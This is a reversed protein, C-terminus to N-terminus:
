DFADTIPGYLEPRRHDLMRTACEDLDITYVLADDHDGELKAALGGGPSAVFAVRPHAFAVFCENEYARTRMWWENDLHWMGYSPILIVEAGQLRLARMTEPWRRDACIVMGVKGFDTDFPRLERGPRFRSDHSLLHTKHYVGVIRGRRDMLAAANRFGDDCREVFGLVLHSDLRRAWEAAAALYPSDERSQAVRDFISDEWGEKMQSVYGDLYCEPTVVCDIREQREGLRALLRELREWNRELELQEPVIKILALTVARAM